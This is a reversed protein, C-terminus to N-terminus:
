HRAIREPIDKILAKITVPILKIQFIPNFAQLLIKHYPADGTVM